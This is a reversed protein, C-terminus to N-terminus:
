TKPMVKFSLPIILSSTLMLLIDLFWLWLVYVQVLAGLKGWLAQYRGLQEDLWELDELRYKRLTGQGLAISEKWM